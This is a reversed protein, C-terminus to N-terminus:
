VGFEGHGLIRVSVPTEEAFVYRFANKNTIEHLAPLGSEQSVFFDIEGQYKFNM